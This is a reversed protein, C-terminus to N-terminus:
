NTGSFSEESWATSTCLDFSANSSWQCFKMSQMFVRARGCLSISIPWWEVVVAMRPLAAGLVALEAFTMRVANTEAFSVTVARAQLGVVDFMDVLEAVMETATM